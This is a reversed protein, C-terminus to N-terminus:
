GLYRLHSGCGMRCDSAGFGTYTYRGAPFAFNGLRGLRGIKARLPHIVEILLQYTVPKIVRGAPQAADM